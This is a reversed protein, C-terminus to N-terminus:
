SAHRRLANTSVSWAKETYYSMEALNKILYDIFKEDWVEQARVIAIIHKVIRIAALNHSKYESQEDATMFQYRDARKNALRTEKLTKM